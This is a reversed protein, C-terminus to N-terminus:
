YSNYMLLSTYWETRTKYNTTSTNQKDINVIDMLSQQHEEEEEEERNTEQLVHNNCLRGTKQSQRALTDLIQQITHIDSSIKQNLNHELGKQRKQLSGYRTTL